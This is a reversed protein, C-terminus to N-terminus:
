GAPRVRCRKLCGDSPVAPYTPFFYATPDLAQIHQTACWDLLNFLTYVQQKDRSDRATLLDSFSYANLAATIPAKNKKNKKQAHASNATGGLLLLIVSIIYGFRRTAKISILYTNM